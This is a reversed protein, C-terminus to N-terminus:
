VGRFAQRHAGEDLAPASEGHAPAALDESGDQDPNAEREGDDAAVGPVDVGGGVGEGVHEQGKAEVDHDAKSPEEVKAVRRKERDARVAVPDGGGALELGRPRAQPTWELPRALHAAEGHSALR